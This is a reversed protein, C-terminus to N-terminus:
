NIKLCSMERWREYSLEDIDGLKLLSAIKKKSNEIKNSLKAIKEELIKFQEIYDQLYKSDNEVVDCLDELDIYLQHM